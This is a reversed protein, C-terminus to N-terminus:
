FGFAKLLKQTNLTKNCCPDYMKILGDEIALREDRDGPMTWCFAVWMDNESGVARVWDQYHEHSRTVREAFSETEGVYVPQFPQVFGFASALDRKLIAYVGPMKLPVSFRFQVPQSFRHGNLTIGTPKPPEMMGLLDLLTTHGM